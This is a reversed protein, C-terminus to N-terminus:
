PAVPQALCIETRAGDKSHMAVRGKMQAVLGAIINIGRGPKAPFAAYHVGDLALGDDVVTLALTNAEGHELTVAIRGAGDAFRRKLSNTLLETVLLGLPIAFDLGVALPISQVSLAVSKAGSAGVISQSLEQLFPAIDFTKLDTSEMLQQHVLGMAYVRQRLYHLAALAQKDSIQRAQAALLADVIQLNNKVRHYVERLLIDRQELAATLQANAARLESTQAEVRLQLQGNAAKVRAESDRLLAATQQQEDIKEQLQANVRELMAPSPLALLKPLLPWLAIAAFVSLLAAAMKVIGEIGYAPLWLTVISMFHSAGCAFIFVVFLYLVWIYKLDPRRRAFTLLVVPMSFYALGTL